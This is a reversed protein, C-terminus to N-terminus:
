EDILEIPQNPAPPPAAVPEPLPPTPKMGVHAAFLLLMDCAREQQKMEATFGVSLAATPDNRPYEVHEVTGGIPGHPLGYAVRIRDIFDTRRAIDVMVGAFCLAAESAYHTLNEREELTVCREWSTTLDHYLATGSLQSTLVPFPRMKLLATFDPLPTAFREYEFRFWKKHKARSGPHYQVLEAHRLYRLEIVNSVRTREQLEKAHRMAATNAALFEAQLWAFHEPGDTRSRKQPREDPLADEAPRKSM